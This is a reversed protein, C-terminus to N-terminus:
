GIHLDPHRPRTTAAAASAGVSVPIPMSLADGCRVTTELGELVRLDRGNLEIFQPPLVQHSQSVRM